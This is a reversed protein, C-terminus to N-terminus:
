EAPRPRPRSMATADLAVAGVTGYKYEVDLASVNNTKFEELQM